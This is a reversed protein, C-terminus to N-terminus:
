NNRKAYKYYAACSGESSVMCAGVPNSPTCKKGFLPCDVPQIMGRLVDGCRCGQGDEPAPVDLDGFEYEADVVSFRERIKLGSGPIVGLGRWEADCKEFVEDCILRAKANGNHDVSRTYEIEVEAINEFVQEMLMLIGGAMDAAEFGAVVCPTNHKRSVAEYIGTGTIVSVHGPCLFGDLMLEECSVLAMMAEPITKHAPLVHFNSIRKEAAEKIVWAVAPTTTEFGVGLFVLKKAPEKQALLLADMPSYVVRVDAGLARECELSSETGPVRLMDGFSTIIVDPKRSIAIARDLYNNPTVCVPCGPGSILQVNEPLLSRLGTRFAAVTHTGCVEMFKVPRGISMALARIDKIMSEVIM